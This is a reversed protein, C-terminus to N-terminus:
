LGIPTLPKIQSLLWRKRPPGPFKEPRWILVVRRMHAYKIKKLFVPDSSDFKDFPINVYPTEQMYLANLRQKGPFWMSTMVVYDFAEFAQQIGKKLVGMFRHAQGVPSERPDFSVCCSSHEDGFLYVNPWRFLFHPTNERPWKRLSVEKGGRHDIPDQTALLVYFSM